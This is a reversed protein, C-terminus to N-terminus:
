DDEEDDGLREELDFTEVNLRRIMGINQYLRLGAFAFGVAMLFMVLGLPGSGGARAAAGKMVPMLRTFAWVIAVELGALLVTETVAITVVESYARHRWAIFELTSNQFKKAVEGEPRIVPSNLFSLM